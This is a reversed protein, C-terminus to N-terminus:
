RKPGLQIWDDPYHISIQTSGLFRGVTLFELFNIKDAYETVSIAPIPERRPLGRKSGVASSNRVYGSYKKPPRNSKDFETIRYVFRKQFDNLNIQSVFSEYGLSHLQGIRPWLIGLPVKFQKKALLSDIFLTDRLSSPEDLLMQMELPSCLDFLMKTRMFGLFKQKRWPSEVIWITNGSNYKTATTSEWRLVHLAGKTPVLGVSRLSTAFTSM